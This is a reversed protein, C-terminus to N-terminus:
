KQISIRYKSLGQWLRCNFNSMEM